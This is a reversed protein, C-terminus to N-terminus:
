SNKITYSLGGFVSAWEDISDEFLEAKEFGIQQHQSLLQPMLGEIIRHCRPQASVPVDSNLDACLVPAQGNDFRM